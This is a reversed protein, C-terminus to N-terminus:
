QMMKTRNFYQSLNAVNLQHSEAITELMQQVQPDECQTASWNLTKATIAEARIEDEILALEKMTLQHM